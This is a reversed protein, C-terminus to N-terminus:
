HIAIFIIWCVKGMVRVVIIIVFSFSCFCAYLTIIIDDEHAM